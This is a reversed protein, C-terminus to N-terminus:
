LQGSQKYGTVVTEGAESGGGQYAWDMVQPARRILFYGVLLPWAVVLVAPLLNRGYFHTFGPCVTAMANPVAALGQYLFTMGIIRVVLGFIDKAKM